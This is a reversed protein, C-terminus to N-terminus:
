QHPLTNLTPSDISQRWREEDLLKYVACRGESKNAARVMAMFGCGILIDRAAGIQLHHLRRPKGLTNSRAFFQELAAVPVEGHQKVINKRFVCGIAAVGETTLVGVKRAKLQTNLRVLMAMATAHAELQVQLKMVDALTTWIEEGEGSGTTQTDDQDDESWRAYRSRNAAYWEILLSHAADLNTPDDQLPLASILGDVSGRREHYLYIPEGDAILGSDIALGSAELFMPLEGAQPARPLGRRFKFYEKFECLLSRVSEWRAAPEGFDGYYFIVLLLVGREHGMLLEADEKAPMLMAAILVDRITVGDVPDFPCLLSEADIRDLNDLSIVSM